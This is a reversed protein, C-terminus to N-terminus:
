VNLEFNPDLPQARKELLVLPYANVVDATRIIYYNLVYDPIRAEIFQKTSPNFFQCDDGEDMPRMLLLDGNRHIIDDIRQSQQSKYLSSIWYKGTPIARSQAITLIQPEWSGSTLDSLTLIYPSDSYSDISVAITQYNRRNGASDVSYNSPITQMFIITFILASTLCIARRSRLEFIIQKSLYAIALAVLPLYPTFQYRWGSVAFGALT